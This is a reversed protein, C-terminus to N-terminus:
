YSHVTHFTLDDDDHFTCKLNRKENWCNCFKFRFKFFVPSNLFKPFVKFINRRFSSSCQRVNVTHDARYDWADSFFEGLLLISNGVLFMLNSEKALLFFYIGHWSLYCCFYWRFTFSMQFPFFSATELNQSRCRNVGPFCTLWDVCMLAPCCFFLWWASRFLLFIDM